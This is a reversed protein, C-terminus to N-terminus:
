TFELSRIGSHQFPIGQPTPGGLAAIDDDSMRGQRIQLSSIWCETRENDEDSFLEFEPPLSFRSDLADGDGSVTTTHKFGNIYKGVVRPSAALDVAFVVRAWENRLHTHAPDIGAYPSCCSKGYSFSSARWFMDADGPAGLNTTRFVAGFGIRAQDGWCLDMVMTWQNVKTGGGNPLIGHLMKLGLLKATPDQADAGGTFPIHLARVSTGNINPVNTFNGQGTSGLEYLNSVTDNIYHLDNGVKAALPAAPDDFEWQSYALPIGNADPGGLALIEEDSMRGERIQIASVWCETRENDEDSFLEFEPPLSFRSDLADGDGAVTTTHKFGNIYKGVVRPSAALDVSFVVRAWQDRLHTHAPDIGAYASCCSKGYSFSSARWFMDADGPAGLNTTRFVAGFGIRAQDGWYLDLIMTWQNVKSGGGNPPIGHFMKLGLLKATPDQADTGGTFPIHIAKTPKGNINPIASFNGQSTTGFEYLNSVSNDLYKLDRGISAKLNGKDFKWYGKVTNLVGGQATAKGTTFAYQRVIANSGSDNFELKITQPSNASLQFSPQYTVSTIKGVKSVAGGPLTVLSGNLTLKLTATDVTTGDDTIRLEIKTAPSVNSQGPEPNAYSVFPTTSFNNTRTPYASISGPTGRDNLLIKNGNTDVNWVELNAAAITESYLVRLPYIGANTVIITTQVRGLLTDALRVSTVIDRPDSGVSLRMSDDSVGGIVYVGPQLRLYGVAEVAFNDYGGETGPIGPFSADGTIDGAFNGNQEFNILEADFTGDSNTGSLDAINAGLLGALQQEARQASATSQTEHTQHTRVRFGSNNTNVSGTLAAATAPIITANVVTFAYAFTKSGYTLNVTHTSGPTLLAPPQYTLTTLNGATSSSASVTSGDFQLTTAGGGLDAIGIVVAADPRADLVPPYVSAISAGVVNTTFISVDDITVNDRNGITQEETGAGFGFRGAIPIYGIPVNNYVNTGNYTVDLTGDPDLKVQVTVFVPAHNTGPGDTRLADFRKALVRSGGQKIIIGPAEGFINGETAGAIGPPPAESNYTDFSITLGTTTGGAERFLSGDYDNALVLCFGQAPNDTGGGMRVKFTAIFSEIRSGANIEPFVYSAQLPLRSPQFVGFEDYVDNLNILTLQSNTILTMIGPRNVNGIGGPDSSFDTQFTGAQLLGAAALSFAAIVKVFRFRAKMITTKPKSHRVVKLVAFSGSNFPTRRRATCAGQAKTGSNRIPDVNGALTDGRGQVYKM